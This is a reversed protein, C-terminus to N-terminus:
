FAVIKRNFVRSSRIEKIIVEATKESKWAGFSKEISNKKEKGKRISVSLGEIIELKNKEDLNSLLDVYMNAISTNEKM